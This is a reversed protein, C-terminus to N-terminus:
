AVIGLFAQFDHENLTLVTIGTYCNRFQCMRRLIKRCNLPTPRCPLPSKMIGSATKGFHYAPTIPSAM